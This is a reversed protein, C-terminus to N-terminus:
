RMDKVVNWVQCPQLRKAIAKQVWNGLDLLSMYNKEIKKSSM